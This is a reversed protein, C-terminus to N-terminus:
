VIVNLKGRKMMEPLPVVECKAGELSELAKSSFAIASISVPHGLRGVSLVKGPVIVNDGESTHADIKYLDVEVRQRTPKSALKYVRKWLRARKDDDKVASLADLWAKVDSRESNSKM